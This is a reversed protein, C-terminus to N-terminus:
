RYPGLEPVEGSTPHTAFRCKRFNVGPGERPVIQRVRMRRSELTLEHGDKMTLMATELLVTVVM